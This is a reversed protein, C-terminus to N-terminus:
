AKKYFPKKSVEAPIMRGRVEVAVATGAQAVEFPLYAMGIGVGVSPSLTGSTLRGLEQSDETFVACGPRIPPGSELCKLPALVESLGESKQALLVDRGVFDEKDLDVFFGLGSELPTREPSLDSGNLPYCMELRLTDRAGLGCARAGEELATRFWYGGAGVKCFLEFGDEGTYGTRCVTLRHGEIEFSDVENRKPLTRGGMIRSYVDAVLPGQVAMGAMEASQDTLEIEERVNNTRLWAFAEATRAANVVLLFRREELRYLILDDIIGGEENLLFTYQAEGESLNEVNNTLMRNLWESSGPGEVHLHGMHSIDFIGAAQRVSQHEELISGYRIPMEWGAFGVLKAGLELHVERLPTEKLERSM